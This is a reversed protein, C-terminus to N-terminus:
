SVVKYFEKMKGEFDVWDKVHLDCHDRIKGDGYGVLLMVEGRFIADDDNNTVYIWKKLDSGMDKAKKKAIELRQQPTKIGVYLGKVTRDENYVTKNPCELYDVNFYKAAEEAFASPSGTLMITKKKNGTGKILEVCERSHTAENKAAFARTAEKIEGENVKFFGMINHLRTNAYNESGTEGMIPKFVVSDIAVEAGIAGGVAGKVYDALGDLYEKNKIEEKGKAMKMIAINGAARSCDTTLLTGDLDLMLMESLALKEIKPQVAVVM